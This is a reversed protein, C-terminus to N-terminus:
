PFSPQKQCKNRKKSEETEEDKKKKEKKKKKKKKEKEKRKKEKKKKKKKTKKLKLQKKIQLIIGSSSLSFNSFSSSCLTSDSITKSGLLLFSTTFYVSM